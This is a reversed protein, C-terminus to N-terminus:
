FEAWSCNLTRGKTEDKIESSMAEKVRMEGANQLTACVNEM